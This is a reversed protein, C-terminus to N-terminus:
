RRLRKCSPQQYRLQVNRPVRSSRRIKNDCYRKALNFHENSHTELYPPPRHSAERALPWPKLLTFSYWTAVLHFVVAFVAYEAHESSYHAIGERGSCNSRTGTERIERVALTELWTIDRGPIKWDPALQFAIWQQDVIISIGWSTSADVFIGMDFPAGRPSLQRFVGPVSLRTSWWKLDTILSPPPYLRIYENDKFKTSFNSLSPLRSRGEPYVFSIYCLSGHLKEVDHLSCRGRSFQAIFSNVRSLFKLRKNDPLSVQRTNLDWLLGIFTLLSAFAKMGKNPHWPINLPAIAILTDVRDYPYRFSGDSYQGDPTPTRFVTLDDEYKLIPGVGEAIWIDVAANAIMGANSSACAAGFPHTHDIFFEGPKGQVVLWPKHDPLVPCTRHFKEIDFTCAQTGPPALAIQSTSCAHSFQLQHRILGTCCIVNHACILM